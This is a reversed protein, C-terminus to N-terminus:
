ALVGSASTNLGAGPALTWSSKNGTNVTVTYPITGFSTLFAAATTPPTAIVNVFPNLFVTTIITASQGLKIVSNPALPGPFPALGQFPGFAYIDWWPYPEASQTQPESMKKDIQGQVWQEVMEILDAEGLLATQSLSALHEVAATVAAGNGNSDQAKYGSKVATKTAM